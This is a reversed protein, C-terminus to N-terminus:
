RLQIRRTVPDGRVHALNAAYIIITVTDGPSGVLNLPISFTARPVGGAPQSTLGSLDDFFISDVGEEDFAVGRIFIAAGAQMTIDQSPDTITIEPGVGIGSTPGTLRDREPCAMVLVLALPLLMRNPMGMPREVAGRVASSKM